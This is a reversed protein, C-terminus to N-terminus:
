GLLEQVEHFQDEANVAQEVHHAVVIIQDFSHILQELGLASRILERGEDLLLFLRIAPPQKTSSRDNVGDGMGLHDPDIFLHCESM